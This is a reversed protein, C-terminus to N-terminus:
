VLVIGIDEPALMNSALKWNYLYYNLCGDGASFMLESLFKKNDLIDLANFVDFGENKAIILADLILAPIPTKTSVNYYSYAARLTQYKPNNLISSPLSYFSFFDTIKMVQKDEVVEISEVVYTYIVDKRPMFWHKVEEETYIFYIKFQRLYNNLLKCIQSIDKKKM